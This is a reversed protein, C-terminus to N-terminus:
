QIREVSAMSFRPARMAMKVTSLRRLGSEAQQM